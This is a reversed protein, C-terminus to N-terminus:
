KKKFDATRIKFVETLFVILVRLEAAGKSVLVLKFALSSSAAGTTVSEQYINFSSCNRRELCKSATEVCPM